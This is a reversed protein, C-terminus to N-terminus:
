NINFGLYAQFTWPIKTSTGEATQPALDTNQLAIGELYSALVAKVNAV